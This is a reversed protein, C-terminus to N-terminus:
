PSPLKLIESDSPYEGLAVDLINLIKTKAELEQPM